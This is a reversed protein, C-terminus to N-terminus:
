MRLVSTTLFLFAGIDGIYIRDAMMIAFDTFQEVNNSNNQLKMRSYYMEM